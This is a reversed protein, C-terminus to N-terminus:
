SNILLIRNQSFPFDNNDHNEKLVIINDISVNLVYEINFVVARTIRSSSFVFINM